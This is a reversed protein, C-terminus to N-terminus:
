VVLIVKGFVNRSEAFEMAKTIETLPFTSAIKPKLKNQKVLYMLTTFDAKLKARFKETGKGTWIYYFATNKGNPLINLLLVKCIMYIFQAMRITGSESKSIMAYSVMTGSKKLLGFSVDISKGGINDFVVDVGNPAIARITQALNKDNYDVPIIGAKKLTEHHKISSAGIVRVGAIQALQTLITGVGGNAGHVLVTDGKKIKAERHLMQWATIGNVILAEADVANVGEPIPLLNETKVTTYTAWGGTLTLVAFRKGILEDDANNGVAVVSGVLDYGPVFPFKPMGPYQGRRMAKEAFSIGTAEMKLIVEDTNPNDLNRELVLLGNPEVISPLIIETATFLSKPKNKSKFDQEESYRKKNQKNIFLLFIGTVIQWFVFSYISIRERIGGPVDDNGFFAFVFIISGVNIIISLWGYWAPLSLRKWQTGTIIVIINGALIGLGGSVINIILRTFNDAIIPEQHFVAFVTLGTAHILGFIFIAKRTKGEFIQSLLISAGGFLIAEVIFGTNMLAYLPSFVSRKLYLGNASNGLDPVYNTAWNYTPNIWANAVIFEVILYVLGALLMATAIVNITKYNRM